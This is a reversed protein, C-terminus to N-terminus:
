RCRIRAHARGDPLTKLLLVMTALMAAFGGLAHPALAPIGSLLLGDNGGPLVVAGLGMLAGGFLRSLASAARPAQWAFRGRALAASVGGAIMALTCWIALATPGAPVLDLARYASRVMVAAFDWGDIAAFLWGGGAGLTLAVLLAPGPPSRGEGPTRILRWPQALAVVAALALWFFAAPGPMAAVTASDAVPVREALLLRGALAGGVMGPLTALYTLNGGTLAVFTGFVCGRNLHAGLGLLVGGALAPLWNDHSMAPHLADPRLWALPVVLLAAWAAGALFAELREMRGERVIQAAAAHTCLGGYKMAFGVAFAVLVALAAMMARRREPDGPM